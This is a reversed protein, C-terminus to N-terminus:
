GALAPELVPLLQDRVQDISRGGVKFGSANRHGGGGFRAAV